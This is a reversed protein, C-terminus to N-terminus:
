EAHAALFTELQVRDPLSETAGPKQVALAGCASGWLLCTEVPQDRIFGLLFGADFADGAGTTDVSTVPFAAQHLTHDGRRVTAGNRGQKMAVLPVTQALTEMASAEDRTRSIHIAEQDNPFFVDTQILSKMLHDTWEEAPDWGPDLSVTASERRATALVEHLNRRLKTQLFYSGTHVHSTRSLLSADIDEASFTAMAGPFTLMARDGPQSLNVTIGTKDGPAVIVHTTDVGLEALRYRLFHGFVDDGIKGCFATRLGLRAAGCAVNASSGGLALTADDVLKEVQGFTPTVDAATLILDVNVEGIVLLDYDRM